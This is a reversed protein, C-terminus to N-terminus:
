QVKKWLYDAVGLQLLGNSLADIAGEDHSAGSNTYIVHIIEHMFTEVKRTHTMSEDIFIKNEKVDHMGLLQKGDKNPSLNMEVVNYNHGGVKIQKKVTKSMRM